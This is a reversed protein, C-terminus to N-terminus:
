ADSTEQETRALAKAYASLLALAPTAARGSHVDYNWEPPSDWGPREERENGMLDASWPRKEEDPTLCFSPSRCLDPHWGPLTEAVLALMADVSVSYPRVASALVHRIGRNWAPAAPDRYACGAGDWQIFEYGSRACWVQGDLVLTPGTAEEALRAIEAWTTSM